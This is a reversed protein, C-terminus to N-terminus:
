SGPGPAPLAAEEYTAIPAEVHDMDPAREAAKSPTDAGTAVAATARATGIAEDLDEADEIPKDVHEPPRSTSRAPPPPATWPVIQQIVSSYFSNIANTTSEIFGPSRGGDKRNQGMETRRILRFRLIERRDPDLLLDRNDQAAALAATLPERAM